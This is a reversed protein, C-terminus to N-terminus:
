RYYEENERKIALIKDAQKRTMEIKKMLKTEENQLMKIRNELLKEDKEMIQRTQKVKLLQGRELGSGGIM